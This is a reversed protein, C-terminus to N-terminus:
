VTISFDLNIESNDQWFNVSKIEEPTLIIGQYTFPSYPNDGTAYSPVLYKPTKM